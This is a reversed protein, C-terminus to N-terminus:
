SRVEIQGKFLQWKDLVNESVHEEKSWDVNLSFKECVGKSIVWQVVVVVPVNLAQIGFM